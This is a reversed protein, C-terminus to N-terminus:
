EKIEPIYCWAEIDEWDYNDFIIGCDCETLTDVTVTGSKLKIIFDCGVDSPNDNTIFGNEDPEDFCTVKHWKLVQKKLEANERQWLELEGGADKLDHELNDICEDKSASEAELKEIQAKLEANEKELKAIDKEYNKKGCQLERENNKGQEYGEKRGEALGDLYIKSYISKMTSSMIHSHNTKIYEEAKEEETM